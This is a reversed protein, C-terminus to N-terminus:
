KGAGALLAIDLLSPYLLYLNLSVEADSMDSPMMFGPPLPFANPPIHFGPRGPSNDSGTAEQPMPVPGSGRAGDAAAPNQGLLKAQEARIHQMIAEPPTAIQVTHMPIQAIIPNPNPNPIPNPNPNTM